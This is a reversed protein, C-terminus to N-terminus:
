RLNEVAACFVGSKTLKIKPKTRQRARATAARGGATVSRPLERLKDLKKRLFLLENRVTRFSNDDFKSNLLKRQEIEPFKLIEKLRLSKERLYHQFNRLFKVLM